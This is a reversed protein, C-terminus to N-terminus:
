TVMNKSLETQNALARPSLLNWELVLVIFSKSSLQDTCKLRYNVEM